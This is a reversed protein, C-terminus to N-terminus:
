LKAQLPFVLGHAVLMLLVMLIAASWACPM